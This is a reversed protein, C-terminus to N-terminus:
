SLRVTEHTGEFPRALLEETPETTPQQHQPPDALRNLGHVLDPAPGDATVQDGPTDMQRRSRRLIRGCDVARGAPHAATNLAGARLLWHHREGRAHSRSSGLKAVTM